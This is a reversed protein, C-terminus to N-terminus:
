YLGRISAIGAQNQGAIGSKIIVLNSGNMDVKCLSYVYNNNRSMFFINTGDTASEKPVLFEGSPLTLNILQYGTGDNNITYLLPTAGTQVEVLIKDQYSSATSSPTATAKSCSTFISVSSFLGIILLFLISNFIKKM